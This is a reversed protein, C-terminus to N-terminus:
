QENVQLISQLRDTLRMSLGLEQRIATEITQLQTLAARLDANHARAEPLQDGFLSYGAVSEVVVGTLRTTDELVGDFPGREQAEESLITLRITQGSRGIIPLELTRAVAPREKDGTTITNESAGRRVQSAQGTGTLIAEVRAALSYPKDLALQLQVHDQHEFAARDAALREQENALVQALAAKYTTSDEIEPVAIQKADWARNQWQKRWDELEQWRQEHAIRERTDQIRRWRDSAQRIDDATLGAGLTVEEGGTFDAEPFRRAFEQESLKWLPNHQGRNFLEDLGEYYPTGTDFDLALIHALTRRLQGSVPLAHTALIHNIETPSRPLEQIFEAMVAEIQRALQPPTMLGRRTPLKLGARQMQVLQSVVEDLSSCQSFDLAADDGEVAAFRRREVSM